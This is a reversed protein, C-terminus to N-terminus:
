TTAVHIGCHIDSYMPDYDLIRFEQVNNLLSPSGIIYDVLTGHTTTPKGIRLDEDLRGNFICVNNNSCLTVLTKGFSNRDQTVDQNYRIDDIGIECLKHYVDIVEDDDEDDPIVYDLM